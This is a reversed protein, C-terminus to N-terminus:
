LSTNDILHLSIEQNKHKSSFHIYDNSYRIFGAFRGLLQWVLYGRGSWVLGLRIAKESCAKLRGLVELVAVAM